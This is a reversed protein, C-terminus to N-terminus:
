GRTSRTQSIVRGIFNKNRAMRQKWVFGKRTYETQGWQKALLMIWSSPVSVVDLTEGDKFVEITYGPETQNKNPPLCDVVVGRDGAKVSSNPIDRTLVVWQFLPATTM